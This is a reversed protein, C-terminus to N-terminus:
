AWEPTPRMWWEGDFRGLLARGALATAALQPDRSHVTVWCDPILQARRQLLATQLYQELRGRVEVAGASAAEVFLHDLVFGARERGSFVQQVEARGHRAAFMVYAGAPNGDEDRVLTALVGGAVDVGVMMALLSGLFAEDYAPRLPFERRLGEVLETLGAATLPERSGGEPAPPRRSRGALADLPALAAGGPPVQRDFRRRFAAASGAGLPALVRRWGVAAGGYSSAGLATWMGRVDELTRDNVLLDQPGAIFRRLLLAGVGRSRHAARVVLPGCCAVRVSEQGFQFPRVHSGIVGVVGEEPDEFVLSPIEPDVFPSETLVRGFFREFGPYSLTTDRGELEAYLSAVAPMDDPQLPRISNL